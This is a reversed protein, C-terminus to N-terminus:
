PERVVLVPRDIEYLFQRLPVNALAPCGRPLIVLGGQQRAFASLRHVEATTLVHLYIAVDREGYKSQLKERLHDPDAVEPSPLVVDLPSAEARMSLNVALRVAEDAADSGDYYTLIPERSPLGEKLVLVRTPAESLVKKSTTGLRRRSSATSTKGLVLLDVEEAARILERSVVGQVTRFEYSVESPEAMRQLSHEAFEAQYRLQRQMREEDLAKPPATYSRVEKAFPLQAARLLIEDEIFLGEVKAEFESALRVATDLAAQSHPSADLAVLIRQFIPSVEKATSM